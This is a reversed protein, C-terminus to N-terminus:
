NNNLKKSILEYAKKVDIEDTIEIGTTKIENYMKQKESNIENLTINNFDKANEYEILTGLNEVIQFAFEKGDKEYVIVKYKVNVLRKFDLFEFLKEAKAIDNIDLNIKQESIVDGSKMM